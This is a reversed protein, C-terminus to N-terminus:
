PLAPDRPSPARPESTKPNCLTSSSQSLARTQTSTPRRSALSHKKLWKAEQKDRTVGYEEELDADYEFRERILGIIRSEDM